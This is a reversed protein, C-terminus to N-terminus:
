DAGQAKLWAAMDALPAGDVHTGAAYDDTTPNEMTSLTFFHNLNDYLHFEFNSKDGVLQKYAEFDKDPSIQFDKGGHLILFPKDTALLYESAPRADMEDIYGQPMGYYPKADEVQRTLAERESPDALSIFYMNQDYVIDLLSRPSGAMIVAGAFLGDSEAVIRPALMGGFSHGVVFIKSADIRENQALLRGALIADEITEERATIDAAALKDAHAYTRKDYRLVAVGDAALYDSIDRFVKIGYASEDMDSPGSGHVLVVAPVKEGGPPLALVGNLPYEAGVTVSIEGASLGSEGENESYSFFLGAIKMDKDYVVRSVVGNVSHRATVLCVYYGDQLAAEASTIESYEGSQAVATEWAERLQGATLSQAMTEDFSATVEDFNGAALDMVVQRAASEAAPLAGDDVADTVDADPVDGAAPADTVPPQAACAALLVLLAAACIILIRKM